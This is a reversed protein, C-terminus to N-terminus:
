SGICYLKNSARIFLQGNAVVISARNKQGKEGMAVTHIVKGSQADVVTVEGDHNMIYCKGDAGTPSSRYLAFGPLDITWKVKGTGAEVRSFAKRVDSLVFFDGDYFLPTPVDSSIVRDDKSVWALSSSDLNGKGGAKVAYIPDRKPACALIVGAGAVPSPVLRWHGIRTPNWTGWRWLEAGTEPDHGTLCDGGAVLIERRGQYDHPVPSSFSELSEMYADSPRVHKWITKGDEPNMALLYSEANEKGVGRVPQNRQLVQLYLKGSDLLPSSSFTWQFAFDGYDAQINRSWLDKGSPDYAMLDGNGYFFVVRKGDTVPSAAAYTSRTDRSVGKGVVKKWLLEGTVRHFAYALLEDTDPDAGSVYIQDGSVVPTSEGPGQLEAVWAVNETRSWKEPLDVETSSGDYTPGRWHSWDASVVQAAICLSLLVLYSKM